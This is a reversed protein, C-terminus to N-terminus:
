RRGAPALLSEHERERGQACDLHYQYRYTEECWALCGDTVDRLSTACRQAAQIHAPDAGAYALERPLRWEADRYAAMTATLHERAYDIAQPTTIGLQQRAVIVLNNIEGSADEAPHSVLDNSWAFTMSIASVVDAWVETTHVEAPLAVAEELEVLVVYFDLGVSLQRVATYQEITPREQHRLSCEQRMGEIYRLVGDVFRAWQSSSMVARTRRCLDATAREFGTSAPEPTQQQAPTDTFSPRLRAVAHAWAAADLGLVRTHQDDLLFGWAIWQACLVLAEPSSRPYAYAACRGYRM